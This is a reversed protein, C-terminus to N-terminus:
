SGPGSPLFRMHNVFLEQFRKESELNIHSTVQLIEEAVSLESFLFMRAGMLATNGFQHIREQPFDLMGTRLVNGLNIFNGFAGAIFVDSIEDRGIGLRGLLIEIGAAIAAKALQFEQIDKQTLTVPHAITVQQEGSLIEGFEGVLGEELLVGVADILGSGCIGRPETNGIIRCSHGGKIGPSDKTSYVNAIAGTTALMGMSIRAGEFAPGAATSACLLGERNGAVIEGNTGLDILVAYSERQHIGTAEIGALIDSGVFSGISPYFSIRECKINWGLERNDFKKLGLDPSEFPFFSLPRVDSGCFLHQMVTNGVIVAKSLEGTRGACLEDVMAGIRNRIMETLMEPGGSLAAELRSVLDSGYIKQPNMGTEVALIHGSELDVLQAVLTTTGLDVAVGLGTGPNFEFPTEDAQIITEFQGVEVVLDSECLSLCALRWDPGLQLEQLRKRHYPDPEVRGDLIRVACKGCVGKGGCPFEVGYEHLLDKLSSGRGAELVKGQPHLRIKVKKL